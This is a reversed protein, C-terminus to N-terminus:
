GNMLARLQNDLISVYSNDILEIYKKNENKNYEDTYINVATYGPLPGPQYILTNGVYSVVSPSTLTLSTSNTVSSVVGIFNTYNAIYGNNSIQNATYISHGQAITLAFQTNNGTIVNSGASVNFTGPEAYIPSRMSVNSTLTVPTYGTYNGAAYATSNVYANTNTNLYYTQPVTQNYIFTSQAVILGDGLGPSSEYKKSIYNQFDVYSKPWDHYPDIINNCFYVIWDYSADGYYDQAIQEATEGDGITYPYFNTAYQKYLNAIGARQTINVANINNYSVIKFKDFYKTM